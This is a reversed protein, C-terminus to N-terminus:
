SVVSANTSPSKRRWGTGALVCLAVQGSAMLLILLTVGIAVVLMWRQTRTRLGQLRDQTATLKDSFKELRPNVSGMTAVVRLTLRVAQEVRDGASKEDSTGAIREHISAAAEMANAMHIRLTAIEEVLPDVLTPESPASTSVDISLLGQVLGASSEAIELWQDAQQLASLLRESKEAAHLQLAVREAAARKTWDRLKEEIEAATITAAEVRERTKAVRERVVALSRDIRGFVNDAVRDLRAHVNWLFIIAGICVAIGMSGLFMGIVNILPKLRRM